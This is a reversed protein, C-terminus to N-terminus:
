LVPVGGLVTSTGQGVVTKRLLSIFIIFIWVVHTEGAMM